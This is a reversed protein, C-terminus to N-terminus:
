RAEVGNLTGHDDYHCVVNKLSRGFELDKPMVLTWRADDVATAQPRAKRREKGRFRILNIMAWVLLSLCLAIGYPMVTVAFELLGKSGALEIWQHEAVNGGLFWVALTLLPRWLYLWASWGLSTLVLMLRRSVRRPVTPRRFILPHGDACRVRIHSPLAM